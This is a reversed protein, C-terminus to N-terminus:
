GHRLTKVQFEQSKPGFGASNMVQISVIYYTFPYLGLIIGNTVDGHVIKFQAMLSDEYDPAYYNIQFYFSLEILNSM